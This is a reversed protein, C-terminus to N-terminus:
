KKLELTVENAGSQITATLGSKAATNYRAPILSPGTKGSARWVVGIRYEGAPAGDFGTYTTLQFSGDGAAVGVATIGKADGKEGTFTLTTGPMPTGDFYAFGRVPHTKKRNATSVGAEDTKAAKMNEPYVADLLINALVPGDKKMTVWTFHDFESYDVGRLRSGGGTTALQYYNMGHRVFKEYFHRHGCFVTYNRGKLLKEVEGWGNKAGDNTLWMPHHVAVITWRVDANEKLAKRAYAIQETGIAVSGPPDNSDLVLFLTQRHVFHYHKRGLKGEWFKASEKTGVDHNGACYFFPMTLKNVYSDFEKWTATYKEDSLKGGEILDGVSLVFAPQMLNLKDVAQAFVNARHGGTRDSVIAFRFEDADDNWRLHTVPNKEEIAFFTKWSPGNGVGGSLVVAVSVGVIAIAGIWLRKM